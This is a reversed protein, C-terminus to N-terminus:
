LTTGLYRFEAVNDLSDRHQSKTRPKQDRSTGPPCTCLKGRILKNVLRRDKKELLPWGKIKKLLATCQHKLVTMTNGRFVPCTYQIRGSCLITYQTGGSCLIHTSHERFVTYTYQTRRFVPYTYHTRGSCLVRTGFCSTSACKIHM